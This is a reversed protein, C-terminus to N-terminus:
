ELFLCQSAHWRKDVSVLLVQQVGHAYRLMDRSSGKDRSMPRGQWSKFMKHAGIHRRTVTLRRLQHAGELERLRLIPPDVDLCAHPPFPSPPLSPTPAHTTPIRHPHSSPHLSPHFLPIHTSRHDHYCAHTHLRTCLTSPKPLAPLAHGDVRAAGIMDEHCAQEALVPSPSSAPMCFSIACFAFIAVQRCNQAVSKTSTQSEGFRHLGTSLNAAPALYSLLAPWYFRM